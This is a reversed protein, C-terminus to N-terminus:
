PPLPLEIRGRTVLFSSASLILRKKKQSGVSLSRASPATRPRKACCFETSLAAFCIRGRTELFASLILRKKKTVKRFTFAGFACNASTKRLLVGHQACRLMNEWPDRYRMKIHINKVLVPPHYGGRGAKPPYKNSTRPHNAMTKQVTPSAQGWLSLCCPWATASSHNIMM